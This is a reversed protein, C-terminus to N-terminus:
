HSPAGPVLGRYLIDYIAIRLASIGTKFPFAGKGTHTIPDIWEYFANPNGQEDKSTLM